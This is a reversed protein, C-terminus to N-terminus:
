DKPPTGSWDAPSVLHRYRYWNMGAAAVLLPFALTDIASLWGTAINVSSYAALAVASWLRAILINSFYSIIPQIVALALRGGLMLGLLAGSFQTPAAIQMRLLYYFLVYVALSFLAGVLLLPHRVTSAAEALDDMGLLQLVPAPYLRIGLNLVTRIIHMLLGAFAFTRILKTDDQM